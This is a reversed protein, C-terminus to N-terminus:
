LSDDHGARPAFEVFLLEVMKGSLRNYIPDSSIWKLEGSEEEKKLDYYHKTRLHKKLEDVSSLKVDQSIKRPGDQPDHYHTINTKSLDIWGSIDWPDPITIQDKYKETSRMVTYSAVITAKVAADLAEKAAKVRSLSDDYNVIAQNALRVAM